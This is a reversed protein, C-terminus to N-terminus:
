HSCTSCSKGSCSSCPSTGRTTVANASPSGAVIPGGTRFHSSSILKETQRSQCQPCVVEEDEKLIIEEFVRGCTACRFEFIPM